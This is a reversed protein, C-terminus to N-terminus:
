LKTDDIKNLENRMNSVINKLCGDTFPSKLHSSELLQLFPKTGGLKCLEIYDNWTTEDQELMRTFFQLACVQALTYDIYYFPSAFIHGQKYFFGGDELIPFGEYDREPIYMKELRRFTEKRQQPTMDPNAYVEHQFHDVLIGYPIFTLAGAIHSYIYKETDEKGICWVVANKGFVRGISFAIVSGIVTAVYCIIFGYFSGYM